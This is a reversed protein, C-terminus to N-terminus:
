YPKTDDQVDGIFSTIGKPQWKKILFMFKYILLGLQEPSRALYGVNPHEWRPYLVNAGPCKRM